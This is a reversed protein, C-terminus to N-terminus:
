GEQPLLCSLTWYIPLIQTTQLTHHSSRSAVIAALEFTTDEQM